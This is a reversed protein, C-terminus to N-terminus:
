QQTVPALYKWVKEKDGFLGKIQIETKILLGDRTLNSIARRISTLPTNTYAACYIKHAQSPSLMIRQRYIGLIKDEQSQAKKEKEITEAVSIDTTKHYHAPELNDYITLQKM